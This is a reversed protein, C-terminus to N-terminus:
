RRTLLDFLEHAVFLRNRKQGTIERLIGLDVLYEVGKHLTPYAMEWTSALASISIVPNIFMHDTLRIAAQPVRKTGLKARYRAHLDLITQADQLAAKSQEAIGRLFFAIWERWDGNRSVALLRKYYEDRHAEFFASLYLLPQTLYGRDCLFLTILLRGVRGNGDLFPHIAEFQYHMLACQVLPPERAESHLYVEWDRLCSAMDEPLPPIFTAENLTCGPPGIWNPTRRFEGPAAENGRVGDMLRGHLERVLRGSLPLEHVRKLGYELAGVYNAVEVVDPAKAREPAAAEFYFLDDMGAQTNEIRSSLVAEKRIHPGILLYPNALQRGSGSLESLAHDATSILRVLEWDLEMQPPLARPVFTWFGHPSRKCTGASETTFDKPNM